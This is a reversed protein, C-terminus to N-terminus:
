HIIKVSYRNPKREALENLQEKLYQVTNEDAKYKGTTSVKFSGDLNRTVELTKRGLLM